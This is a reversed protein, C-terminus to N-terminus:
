EDEWYNVGADAKGFFSFTRKDAAGGPASGAMVGFKGSDPYEMLDPQEMTSVCLYKLTAQSDNIIQHAHEAGGPPAAILDGETIAFEEEGIRVKGSGSLILFMEENVHHSHFPWARFGPEVEAIRYGLKQAGIKGALAASRVKFKDSYATEVFGLDPNNINIIHKSM